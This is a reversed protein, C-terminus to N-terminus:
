PQTPPTDSSLECFHGKWRGGKLVRPFRGQQVSADYIELGCFLLSPWHSSCTQKTRPIRLYNSLFISLNLDFMQPICSMLLCDYITEYKTYTQGPKILVEGCSSYILFQQIRAEQNIGTVSNTHTAFLRTVTQLKFATRKRCEKTQRAPLLLHACM